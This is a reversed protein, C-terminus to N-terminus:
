MCVLLSNNCVLIQKLIVCTHHMQTYRQVQTTYYRADTSDIVHLGICEEHVEIEQDVWHLCIVVLHQNSVDITEDVM